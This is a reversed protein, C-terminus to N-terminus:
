ATEYISEKTEQKEDLPEFKKLRRVDVGLGDAPDIAVTMGSDSTNCKMCTCWLPHRIEAVRFVLGLSETGGCCLTPKVVQVIDGAKIM